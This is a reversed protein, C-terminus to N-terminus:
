TDPTVATDVTICGFEVSNFISKKVGFITDTHVGFKTKYDHLKEVWSPLQGFALLGAQAGLFLSRAVYLGTTAIADSADFYTGSATGTGDGKRTHIYDCRKIIVGDWVGEMGSFIPNTLGRLNAERQAQQWATEARLDKLQLDHVLMVYWRKGDVIVPRIPSYVTGTTSDTPDVYMAAKRKAYSIVLTGFKMTTASTIAVDGTVVSLAGATTQGGYFRRMSSGSAKPTQNVTDIGSSSADVANKGTAQGTLKKTCLNSLACITDNAMVRAYWESLTNHGEQRLNIITRQETMKGNLKVSHGREHITVSNDYFVMAAENGEYTGDDGQGDSNDLARLSFTIKDGKAKVFDKNVQIINGDGPGMFQKLSNKGLASKFM